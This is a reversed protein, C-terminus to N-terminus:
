VFDISILVTLLGLQTAHLLTLNQFNAQCENSIYICNYLNENLIMRFLGISRLRVVAGFCPCSTSSLLSSSSDTPPSVDSSSDSSSSPSSLEPFSLVSEYKRVYQYEFSM